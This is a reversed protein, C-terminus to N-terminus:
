PPAARWTIPIALRQTGDVVLWLDFSSITGSCRGEPWRCRLLPPPATAAAESAHLRLAPLSSSLALQSLLSGADLTLTLPRTPYCPRDRDQCSLALAGLPAITGGDAVAASVRTGVPLAGAPVELRLAPGSPARYAGPLVPPPALELTGGAGDLVLQHEPALELFLARHTVRFFAWGNEVRWPTLVTGTDTTARLLRSLPVGAEREVPQPVLVGAVLQYRYAHPEDHYGSDVWLVHKERAGTRDQFVLWQLTNCRRVPGGRSPLCPDSGGPAAGAALVTPEGLDALFRTRELEAVSFQFARYAASLVGSQILGWEGVTSTPDSRLMFWIVAVLPMTPHRAAQLSWALTPAVLLAVDDATRDVCALNAPDHCPRTGAGYTLGTESVIIPKALGFAAMVQRFREIKGLFGKATPTEHAQRHFLYWNFSAIDFLAGANGIAPDIVQAFFQCNFTLYTSEDLPAGTRDYCTDAALAAFVIRAAPDAAQKANGARRLLEAYLRPGWFPSASGYPDRTNGLCGGGLANPAGDPATLDKLYFDAENLIQWFMVAGRLSPDGAQSGYRRMASALFQEFAALGRETLPGCRAAGPTYSGPFPANAVVVLPVLGAERLARFRADYSEWRYQGPVGEVEDWNLATRVYRAGLAQLAGMAASGPEPGRDWVGFITEPPPAARAVPATPIGSLLLVLLALGCGRWRLAM